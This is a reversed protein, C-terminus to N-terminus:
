INSSPIILISRWSIHHPAHVPNIQRLIPAM